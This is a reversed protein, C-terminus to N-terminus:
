LRWICLVAQTQHLSRVEFESQKSRAPTRLLDRMARLADPPDISLTDRNESTGRRPSPDPLSESSRSCLCVQWIEGDVPEISKAITKDAWDAVQTKSRVGDSGRFCGPEAAAKPKVGEASACCCCRKTDSEVDCSGCGHCTFLNQEVEACNSSESAGGFCTALPQIAMAVILCLNVAIHIPHLNQMLQVSIYSTGTNIDTIRSELEIPSNRSPLTQPRVRRWQPESIRCSGDLIGLARCFRL